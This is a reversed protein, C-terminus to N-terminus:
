ARPPRLSVDDVRSEFVPEIATQLFTRGRRNPLSSVGTLAVPTNCHVAGPCNSQDSGSKAQASAPPSKPDLLCNVASHSDRGEHAVANDPFLSVLLMVLALVSLCSGLKMPRMAVEGSEFQCCEYVGSLGFHINCILVNL